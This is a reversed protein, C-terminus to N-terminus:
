GPGHGAAVPHAGAVLPRTCAPREPVWQPQGAPQFQIAYDIRRRKVCGCHACTAAEGRQLKATSWQHREHTPVIRCMRKARLPYDTTSEPFTDTYVM